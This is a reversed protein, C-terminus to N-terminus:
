RLDTAFRQMRDLWVLMGSSLSLAMVALGLAVNLPLATFYVQIQPILRNLIGTAFRFLIGAFLLPAAIRVGLSFADGAARVAWAAADGAPVSVGPPFAQYSSAVARLLDHHLGTTFIMVIGLLSYFLGIIQGAQNITPDQTQAFALGTEFGAIQGATTLASQLVRAVMGLMLGILIEGMLATVGIALNAPERPLIAALTPALVLTLLLAIGLRVRQPVMAEGFGPLLMILASIRAFALCGGWIEVGWLTM